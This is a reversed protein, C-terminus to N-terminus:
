SGSSATSSARAESTASDRQCRTLPSTSVAKRDAACTARALWAKGRRAGTGISGRPAIADYSWASSMSVTQTEACSVCRWSAPSAVTSPRGSSDMWTITGSTPPANPLLPTAAGSVTSTATAAISVPCVTLHASSRSSFKTAEYWPRPTSASTSSASSASPVISPSRARM